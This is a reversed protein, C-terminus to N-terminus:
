VVVEEVAVKVLGERIETCIAPAYRQGTIFDCYAYIYGDPEDVRKGAAYFAIDRTCWRETGNVRILVAPTPTNTM